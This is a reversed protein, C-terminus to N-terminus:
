TLCGWGGHGFEGRDAAEQLSRARQQIHACWRLKGLAVDRAGVIQRQEAIAFPCGDAGGVFLLPTRSRHLQPQLQHPRLQGGEALGQRGPVGLGTTRRQSEVAPATAHAGAAHGPQCVGQIQRHQQQLPAVLSVPAPHQLLQQPGPGDMQQSASCACALGIQQQGQLLAPHRHQVQFAQRVVPAAAEAAQSKGSLGAVLM